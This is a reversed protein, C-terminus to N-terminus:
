HFFYYLKFSLIYMTMIPHSLIFPTNNLTIICLKGSFLFLAANLIDEEEEKKKRRLIYIIKKRLASIGM